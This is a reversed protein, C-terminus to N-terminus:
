CNASSIFRSMRLCSLSLPAEWRCNCRSVPEMILSGEMDYIKYVM